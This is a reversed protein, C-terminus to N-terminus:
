KYTLVMPSKHVFTIHKTQQIRPRLFFFAYEIYFSLFISISISLYISLHIFPHISIYSSLYISLFVCRRRMRRRDPLHPVLGGTALAGALTDQPGPRKGMRTAARAALRSSQPDAFHGHRGPHLDDQRALALPSTAPLRLRRAQAGVSLSLSGAGGWLLRTTAFCARVGIFLAAAPTFLHHSTHSSIYLVLLSHEWQSRSRGLV